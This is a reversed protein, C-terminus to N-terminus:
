PRSPMEPQGGSRTRAAAPKAFALSRLTGLTPIATIPLEGSVIRGFAVAHRLGLAILDTELARVDGAATADIVVRDEVVRLLPDEPRFDVGRRQAERRSEHLAVLDPSIKAPKGATSSSACALPVVAAFAAILALVLPHHRIARAGAPGGEGAAGRSLCRGRM